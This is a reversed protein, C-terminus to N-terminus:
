PTPSAKTTLERSGQTIDSVRVSAADANAEANVSKEGSKTALHLRPALKAGGSALVVLGRDAAGMTLSSELGDSAHVDVHEAGHLLSLEAFQESASLLAARGNAASLNVTAMADAYVQVGGGRKGSLALRGSGHDGHLGAVLNGEDDFFALSTPGLVVKAGTPSAVRLQTPAQLGRIALVMAAVGLVIAISAIKQWKRVDAEVRAIRETLPEATPESESM